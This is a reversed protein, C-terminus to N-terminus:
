DAKSITRSFTAWGQMVSVTVDETIIYNQFPAFIINRIRESKVSPHIFVSVGDREWRWLIISVLYHAIRQVPDLKVRTLNSAMEDREKLVTYAQM